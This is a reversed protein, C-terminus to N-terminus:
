KKPPPPGGGGFPGKKAVVTSASVVLADDPLGELLETELNDSIGVKVVVPKLGTKDASLLYVLRQNGM